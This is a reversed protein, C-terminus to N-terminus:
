LKSKRTRREQRRLARQKKRAAKKEALKKNKMAKSQAAAFKRREVAEESGYNNAAKPKEMVSYGGAILTVAGLLEGAELQVDIQVKSKTIKIEETQFGVYSFIVIDNANAQLSYQGNLDTQTGVNTGKIFINVGPLPSGNNDKVTGSIKLPMPKTNLKQNKKKRSSHSGIELSFYTSDMQKNSANSTQHLTGLLSFPILLSAAYQRIKPSKKEIAIGRNLQTDKFRGCGVSGKKLIRGLELDSMKTFDTVEKECSACHRGKQTPTMKQWDEHCPEPIRIHLQKKM